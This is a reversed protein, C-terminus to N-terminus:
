SNKEHFNYLRTSAQVWAVDFPMTKTNFALQWANNQVSWVVRAKTEGKSLLIDDEYVEQGLKDVHGTYQLIIHNALALEGRQFEVKGLRKMRTNAVDWAIFKLKRM